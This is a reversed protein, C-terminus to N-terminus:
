FGLTLFRAYLSYFHETFETGCGYITAFPCSNM